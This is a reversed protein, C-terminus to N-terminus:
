AAATAAAAFPAIGRRAAMVPGRWLAAPAIRAAAALPWAAFLITVLSGCAAAFLLPLPYIVTGARIPLWPAIFPTAGAAASAGVLLGGMIGAFAIATIQMAFAAITLGTSAGLCKLTAVAATKSEVYGAVANSIGIGGVLLAATAAIQLFLGVRDLLRRLSPAADAASRLQWGAEPFATRTATIWQDASSGPPLRL